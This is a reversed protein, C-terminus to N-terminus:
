PAGDGACRTGRQRLSVENRQNFQIISNVTGIRTAPFAIGMGNWLRNLDRGGDRTEGFDVGSSMHLLDRIPTRGYESGKFGSVYTEPTDDVSKIAGETIAIGILIGIISKVMSQSVFRDRDTRAYQYREFLIQDDKAILLGTVPNRSMYDNLSLRSGRFDYSLQLTACKFKSPTAARQVLRTPYIQDIHTFAGVRYKPEWPDGQRRADM